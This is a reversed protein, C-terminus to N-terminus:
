RDSKFLFWAQIFRVYVSVIAVFLLKSDTWESTTSFSLIQSVKFILKKRQFEMRVAQELCTQM